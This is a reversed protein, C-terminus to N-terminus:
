FNENTNLQNDVPEKKPKISKVNGNGKASKIKKDLKLKPCKGKKSKVIKLVKKM